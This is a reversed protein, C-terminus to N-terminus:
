EEETRRIFSYRSLSLPPAPNNKGKWAILSVSSASSAATTTRRRRRSARENRPAELAHRDGRGAPQMTFRAPARHSIHAVYRPSNRSAKACTFTFGSTSAPPPYLIRRCKILTVLNRPVHRTSSTILALVYYHVGQLKSRSAVGAQRLM